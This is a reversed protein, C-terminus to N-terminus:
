EDYTVNTMREPKFSRFNHVIDYKKLLEAVEADRRENIAHLEIDFEAQDVGELETIDIALVTPRAEALVAVVRNSTAGNEKTYTFSAIKM